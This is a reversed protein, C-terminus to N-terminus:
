FMLMYLDLSSAQSDNTEGGSLPVGPDSSDRMILATVLGRRQTMVAVLPVSFSYM